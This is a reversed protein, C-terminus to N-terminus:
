LQPLHLGIEIKKSVFEWPFERHLGLLQLAIAATPALKRVITIM